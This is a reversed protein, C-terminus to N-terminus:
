TSVPIVHDKFSAVILASSPRERFERM